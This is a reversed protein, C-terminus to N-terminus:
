RLESRALRRLLLAVAMQLAALKERLENLEDTAHELELRTHAADSRYKDSNARQEDREREAVRRGNEAEDREDTLDAIRKDCGTITESQRVNCERLRDREAQAKECESWWKDRDATMDAIRVDAAVARWRLNELTKQAEDARVLEALVNVQDDTFEAKNGALTWRELNSWRMAPRIILSSVQVLWWKGPECSAPDIPETNTVSM